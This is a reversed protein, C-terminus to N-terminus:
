APRADDSFIEQCVVSNATEFRVGHKSTKYYNPNKVHVSEYTINLPRPKLKRGTASHRNQPLHQTANDQM